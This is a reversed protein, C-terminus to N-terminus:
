SSQGVSQKVPAAAVAGSPSLLGISLVSQLRDDRTVQDILALGIGSLGTFCGPLLVNSGSTGFCRYSGGLCRARAISQNVLRSSREIAASRLAAPLQDAWPGEAVIRLLSANGMTGCCLHDMETFPFATLTQLATTMEDLCIADWLPTGFLCARSLAIGPAGHCWSTMFTSPQDPKYDRYDPWNGHDADFREREYALARSAGEIFRSEGM